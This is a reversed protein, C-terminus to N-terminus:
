NLTMDVAAAFKNAALKLLKPKQQKSDSTNVAMWTMM